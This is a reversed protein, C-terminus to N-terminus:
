KTLKVDEANTICRPRPINFHFCGTKMCDVRRQRCTGVCDASAPCTRACVQNWGTCFRQRTMGQADARQPVVFAIAVFLGLMSAIRMDSEM